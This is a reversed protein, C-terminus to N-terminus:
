YDIELRAWIIGILLVIMQVMNFLDHTGFNNNVILWIYGGLSLLDIILLFVSQSPISAARYLLITEFVSFLSIIAYLVGEYNFKIQLEIGYKEIIDSYKGIIEEGIKLEPKAFALVTITIMIVTYILSVLTYSKLIFRGFRFENM